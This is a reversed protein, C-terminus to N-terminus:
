ETEEKKATENMAIIETKKRQSSKKGEINKNSGRRGINWMKSNSIRDNM